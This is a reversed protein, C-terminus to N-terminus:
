VETAKTYEVREFTVAPDAHELDLLRDLVEQAADASNSAEVVTYGHATWQIKYNSM